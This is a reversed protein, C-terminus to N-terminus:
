RRPRGAVAGATRAARAGRAAMAGDQPPLPPDLAAIRGAAARQPAIRRRLSPARALDAAPRALGPPLRRAPLRAFRRRRRPRAPRALRRAAEAPRARRAAALGGGVAPVPG